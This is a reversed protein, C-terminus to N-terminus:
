FKEGRLRARHAAEVALMVMRPDNGARSMEMVKVLRPDRAIFARADALASEADPGYREVLQQVATQANATDVEPTPKNTRVDIIVDEVLQAEENTLGADAYMKHIEAAVVPKLADFQEPTVDIGAMQKLDIVNSAAAIAADTDVHSKFTDAFYMRREPSNRLERINDPLEAEPLKGDPKWLAHQEFSEKRAADAKDAAARESIARGRELQTARAADAADVPAAAPKQASSPFMRDVLTDTATAPTEITAATAPTSASGFLRDAIAGMDIDSM